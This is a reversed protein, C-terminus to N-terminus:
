LALVISTTVGESNKVFISEMYDMGGGHGQEGVNGGLSVALIAEATTM